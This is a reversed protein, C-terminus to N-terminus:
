QEVTSHINLSHCPGTIIGAGSPTGWNRQSKGDPYAAKGPKSERILALTGGFDRRHWLHNRITICRWFYTFLESRLIGVPKGTSGSTHIVGTRGHTKPLDTSHLAKENAQIEERTLVPLARWLDPTWADAQGPAPLSAFRDRYFPVTKVAHGVLRALQQLQRREIEAPTLWQSQDLQFLLGQTSATRRDPVGPWAVEGLASKFRLSPAKAPAGAARMATEDPM